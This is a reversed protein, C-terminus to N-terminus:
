CCTDLIHRLVKPSVFPGISSCSEAINRNINSM